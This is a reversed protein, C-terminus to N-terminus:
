KSLVEKFVRDFEKSISKWSYEEKSFKDIGAKSLTSYLKKDSYLLELADAVDEAAVVEGITMIQSQLFSHSPEVLIGCDSYLDSLASHNPVIQPAGTIAHEINVLGWGEGIGTNLGVDCINYILNLKEVPVSQTGLALNSLLLRESIGLRKAYKIIDLHADKIGAHMYLKVNEPKGEAFIKFADMTIDLRKRPQNRQGSFVIFLNEPDKVKSKFYEKRLIGRDVNMKYFVKSDIGHPIVMTELEPAAKKVVLRAFETYLIVQDVIDFDTYWEPDHEKADVPTYVVIRPRPGEKYISKIVKLYEGIIWADNLIFIMDPGHKLLDPLRKLGYIDSGMTGAPFIPFTYQHPDGWYNVGLGLIDYDEKPLYEIISHAVRSFGTPTVLDSIWLVKIKREM